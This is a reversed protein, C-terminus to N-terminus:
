DPHVSDTQGSEGPPSGLITDVIYLPRRKVESYIRGVYEGVVGLLLLQVGSLFTLALFLTTFGAPSEIGSLREWLFYLASLLSLGITILGVSTVLRLPVSSFAFIGDLALKVLRRASYKTEGAGRAEREVEVGIQPFGAWTRLGRLYRSSEPASRLALIVRRSVLAFDGSNRPLDLEALRHILRYAASYFFRKILSEKRKVRIAYVVDYGKRWEELLRPVAEPPDQCDGDMLVVVEGDAHDVAASMAVQHGFNRSLFVAGVRPDARTAEEILARTRDRSGDDVLLIRHDQGELGDLTAQCRRLFEPLIEEENFIPAALTVTPTQRDSM